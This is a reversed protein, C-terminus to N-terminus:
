RHLFGRFALAKRPKKNIRTLLQHPQWNCVAHAQVKLLKCNPVQGFTSSDVQM